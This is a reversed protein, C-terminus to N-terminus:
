RRRRRDVKVPVPVPVFARAPARGKLLDLVSTLIEKLSPMSGGKQGWDGVRWLHPVSAQHLSDHVLEMNHIKSLLTLGIQGQGM